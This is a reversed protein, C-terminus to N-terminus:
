GEDGEDALDCLPESPPYHAIKVLNQLATQM